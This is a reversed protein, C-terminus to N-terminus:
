GIVQQYYVSQQKESEYSQQYRGIYTMFDNLLDLEAITRFGGAKVYIRYYDSGGYLYYFDSREPEFMFAFVGTSAITTGAYRVPVGNEVAMLQIEKVGEKAEIKGKIAAYVDAKVCDFSVCCIPFLLWVRSNILLM